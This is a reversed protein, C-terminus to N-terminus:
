LPFEYRLGTFGRLNSEKLRSPWRRRRSGRRNRQGFSLCSVCFMDSLTCVHLLLTHLAEGCQGGETCRSLWELGESQVAHQWEWRRQVFVRESEASMFSLLFVSILLHSDGFITEFSMEWKQSANEGKLLVFGWRKKQVKSVRVTPEKRSVWNKCSWIFSNCCCNETWM